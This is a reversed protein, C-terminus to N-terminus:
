RRWVSRVMLGVILTTEFKGFFMLVSLIIYESWDLGAFGPFSPAMVNVLHGSTTAAAVSMSLSEQLSLGLIALALTGGAIMALFSSGLLWVAEMDNRAVNMKSFRIMSVGHPHALRHLENILQRFVIALRMTKLGGSTSTVEGGISALVMLIIIMGADINLSPSDPMIGTTSAASIIMFFSEWLFAIKNSVVNDSVALLLIFLLFAVLIIRWLYNTETDQSYIQRQGKFWAYHYDLNFMGVLMFIVMVLQSWFGAIAVGSNPLSVGSTSIAGLSRVLADFMTMPGSVLLLFCVLTLSAYLPFMSKGAAYMRGSVGGITGKSVPSIHMQMGGSNCESLVSLMIMIGLFGGFWGVMSIWLILGRPMADIDPFSSVGMTTLASVGDFFGMVINSDPSLFISPLGCIFATVLGTLITGAMAVTLKDTSKSGFFTIIFMVGFFSSIISSIAFALVVNPEGDIIGMILPPIMLLSTAVLTNGLFGLLKGSIFETSM